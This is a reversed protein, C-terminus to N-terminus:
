PASRYGRLRVYDAVQGPTLVEIMQLHTRLHASRLEGQAVGIRLTAEQLAAQTVMREAFLRNLVTEESIIREGIPITEARMAELLENTRRRQGATLELADALELAHLPGPYGNLEAALALGMGRGARLDAIQQESLAKVRRHELGAYPLAKAGGDHADHHGQGAAPSAALALDAILFALVMRM